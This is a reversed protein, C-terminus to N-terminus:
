LMALMSTDAWQTRIWVMLTGVTVLATMVVIVAILITTKANNRM